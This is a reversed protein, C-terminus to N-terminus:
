HTVCTHVDCIVSVSFALKENLSFPPNPTRVGVWLGGARFWRLDRRGRLLAVLTVEVHGPPTFVIVIDNIKWDSVDACKREWGHASEGADSSASHLSHTHPLPHAHPLRHQLIATRRREGEGKDAETHSGLRHRSWQHLWQTRFGVLLPGAWQPSVSTGTLKSQPPASTLRVLPLVSTLWNMHLLYM